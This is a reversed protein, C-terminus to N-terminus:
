GGFYTFGNSFGTPLPEIGAGSGLGTNGAGGLNGPGLGIASTNMNGGYNGFPLTYNGGGSNNGGGGNQSYGKFASALGSAATNLGSQATNNAGLIQQNVAAINDKWPQETNIQWQKDKNASSRALSNQYDALHQLRLSDDYLANQNYSNEVNGALNAISNPDAGGMLATNSLSSLTRDTNNQMTQRAGAGIGQNAQSASINEIQQEEPNIQYQPRNAALAQQQKRYKSKQAEGYAFEGLGIASGILLGGAPM